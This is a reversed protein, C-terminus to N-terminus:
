QKNFINLLEIPYDYGEDMLLNVDFIKKFMELKENDDIKFNENKIEELSYYLFGIGIVNKNKDLNLKEISKYDTDLDGLVFVNEINPYKEHVLKALHESKNFGYIVDKNYGICKNNNKEDFIFENAIFSLRGKKIYEDLGKINILHFFEVIIEKIGGSIIVIPINLEMLKEYFEKVKDKLKIYKKDNKLEVMKKISDFTFDPHAMIDLAKVNWELLKTKRIEEDITVDEEYKLYHAHLKKRKEIVKEQDGGFVSQNYMGYSSIYKDGTEYNIKNFLTYDFDSVLLIKDKTGDNDSHYKYSKQFISKKQELIDKNSIIIKKFPKPNSQEM